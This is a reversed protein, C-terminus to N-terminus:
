HSPSPHPPNFYAEYIHTYIYIYVHICICIYEFVAWHFGGLVSFSHCMSSPTLQEFYMACMHLSGYHFGSMSNIFALEFYLLAIKFYFLYYALSFTSHSPPELTSSHKGSNLGWYQWFFYLLSFFVSGDYFLKLLYMTRKKCFFFDLM